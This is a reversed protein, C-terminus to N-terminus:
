NFSPRIHRLAIDYRSANEWIIMHNSNQARPISRLSSYTLISWLAFRSDWLSSCIAGCFQRKIFIYNFLYNSQMEAMYWDHTSGHQMSKGEEPNPQKRFPKEVNKIFYTFNRSSGTSSTAGALISRQGLTYAKALANKSFLVMKHNQNVFRFVSIFM